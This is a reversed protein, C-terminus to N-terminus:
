LQDMVDKTCQRYRLMVGRELVPFHSDLDILVLDVDSLYDNLEQIKVDTIKGILQSLQSREFIFRGKEKGRFSMNYIKHIKCVAEKMMIVM